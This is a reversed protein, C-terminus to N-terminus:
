LSEVLWEGGRCVLQHDCGMEAASTEQGPLQRVVRKGQRRLSQIISLEADVSAFITNGQERGKPESSDPKLDLLSKLDTSFGTAPRARGFAQGIGDYRGGKAIAQGHGPLYAAFVVGTHYNYGRLEGLDFYLEVKPYQAAIEEAICELENLADVVASPADSLLARAQKLTEVGGSLEILAQLMTASSESVSWVRLSDKVESIAKRQLAEFLVQEQQEDLGAHSALARFIRVHGLDLSVNTASVVSLTELMLSIVELDSEIGSHGYLEAGLQIPSRSAGLFAPKTHFVSGAYCLRVPGDDNLTHADIRAVAPTTDARLGMTRGTLQDTVKFIQLDLDHGVGETLSEMFELHPPIVLQYGWRDFLDLMERRLMEASRARIPLIEEIGDPLLWRDAVTM